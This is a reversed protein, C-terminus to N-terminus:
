EFIFNDSSFDNENQVIRKVHTVGVDKQKDSYFHNNILVNFAGVITCTFFLSSIIFFKKFM